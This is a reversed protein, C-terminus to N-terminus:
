LSQADSDDEPPVLAPSCHVQISLYINILIETGAIMLHDRQPRPSPPVKVQWRTPGPVAARILASSVGFKQALKNTNWAIPDETVLRIAEQRQQPTLAFVRDRQAQPLAHQVVIPRATVYTRLSLSTFQRM